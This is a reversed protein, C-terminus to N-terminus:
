AAEKGEAGLPCFSQSASPTKALREVVGAAIRLQEPTFRHAKRPTHIPELDRGWKREWALARLPSRHAILWESREVFGTLGTAELAEGLADEEAAHAAFFYENEPTSMIKRGEPITM